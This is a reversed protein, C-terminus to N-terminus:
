PHPRETSASLQRLIALGPELALAAQGLSAAISAHLAAMALDLAKVPALGRLRGALYLGSLFDGTGNPVKPQVPTRVMHRAGAVQLVTLLTHDPGPISTALIEAALLHLNALDGPTAIPKGTLWALEFRNPTIATALPLLHQALARAIDEAIYLGAEDGLVPDVLVFLKPNAAKLTKILTATALVQATSAFYGTMIGALGTFRGAVRLSELMAQFIEDGIRQVVPKGHGPHASLLITPLQLVNCGAAQLAPVGASNGVPGFVVQSSLALVSPVM